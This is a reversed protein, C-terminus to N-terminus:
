GPKRLGGEGVECFLFIKIAMAVEMWTLIPAKNLGVRRDRFDASCVRWTGKRDTRLAMVGGGSIGRNPTTLRFGTGRELVTKPSKRPNSFSQTECRVKFKPDCLM